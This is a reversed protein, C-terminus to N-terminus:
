KIIKKTRLYIKLGIYAILIAILSWMFQGRRKAQVKYKDAEDTKSVLLGTLKSKDIECAAIEATNTKIITDRIHVTNTIVKAPLTKTITIRVTDFDQIMVTDALGEIYLTDTTIVTDKIVSDKVPFEDACFEAPIKPYAIAAKSFQNKAKRESYCSSLLLILLLYKMIEQWTQPNGM